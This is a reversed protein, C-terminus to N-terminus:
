KALAALTDRLTEELPIQPQWGTAARLKANDGVLVPVDVPRVLTPDQEITLDVGAIELLKNALTEVSVDVGSCVNYAEGPTGEAVLL